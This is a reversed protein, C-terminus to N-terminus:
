EAFPFVDLREIEFIKSFNNGHGLLRILENALLRTHALFHPHGRGDQGGHTALTTDDEPIVLRCVKSSVEEQAPVEDKLHEASKRRAPESITARGCPSGAAGGQWGHPTPLAQM